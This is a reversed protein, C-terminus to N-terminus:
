KMQNRAMESVTQIELEEGSYVKYALVLFVLWGLPGCVVGILVFSLVVTVIWWGIGLILSQWAHFLLKKNEKKETVMVIISGLVPLAYCLAAWLRYDKDGLPKAQATPKENMKEEAPKPKAAPKETMKEEAM